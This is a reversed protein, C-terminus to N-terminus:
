GGQVATLVEVRAGDLLVVSAWLSRPVVVGDVAVAIGTTAATLLAVADAVVGAGPLERPEGNLRVSTM